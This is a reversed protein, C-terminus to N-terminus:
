NIIEDLKHNAIELNDLINDLKAEVKNSTNPKIDQVQTNGSLTFFLIFFMIYRM